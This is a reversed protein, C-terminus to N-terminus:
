YTTSSIQESSEVYLLCYDPNLATSFIGCNQCPTKKIQLYYSSSHTDPTSCLFLWLRSLFFPLFYSSDEPSWQWVAQNRVLIATKSPVAEEPFNRCNQTNSLSFLTKYVYLPLNIGVLLRHSSKEFAYKVTFITCSFSQLFM